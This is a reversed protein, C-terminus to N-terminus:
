RQAGAPARPRCFGCGIRRLIDTAQGRCAEQWAPLRLWVMVAVAPLAAPFPAMHLCRLARAFFSKANTCLWCRSRASPQMRPRTASCRMWPAVCPRRRLVCPLQHSARPSRLWRRAPPVAEGASAHVRPRTTCAVLWCSHNVYKRIWCTGAARSSDFLLPNKKHRTCIAAGM